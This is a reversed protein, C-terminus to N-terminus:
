WGLDVSSLWCFGQFRCPTLTCQSPVWQCCFGATLPICKSVCPYKKVGHVANTPLPVCCGCTTLVQSELHRSAWMQNPSERRTTEVWGVFCGAWWTNSSKTNLKSGAIKVFGAFLAHSTEVGPHMRNWGGARCLFYLVDWQVQLPLLLVGLWFLQWKMKMFMELSLPRGDKWAQVFCRSCFLLEEYGTAAQPFMLCHWSLPTAFLTRFGRSTCSKEFVDQFWQNGHFGPSVFDKELELSILCRMFKDFYSSATGYSRFKQRLSGSEVNKYSWFNFWKQPVYQHINVKFWM